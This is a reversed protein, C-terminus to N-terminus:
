YYSGYKKLSALGQSQPGGTPPLASPRRIGAMGGGAFGEPLSFDLKVPGGTAKKIRVEGKKSLVGGKGEVQGAKGYLVLDIINKIEDLEYGSKRLLSTMNKIKNDIIRQKYLNQEAKSLDSLKKAKPNIININGYIFKDDIRSKDIFVDSIKITSGPRINLKPGALTKEQGIITPDNKSYEKIKIKFKDLVSDLNSNIKEAEKITEANWKKGKNKELFNDIDLAINTMAGQGGKLIEQNVVVHQEVIDNLGYLEDKFIKAFKVKSDKSIWDVPILHGLDKTFRKSEAGREGKGYVLSHIEPEELLQANITTDLAKNFTYFDKDIINQLEKRKKTETAYEGEGRIIKDKARSKLNKIIDGLHYIKRDYGELTKTKVDKNTWFGRDTIKKKVRILDRLDRQDASSKGAELFDLIENFTLYQNLNVDKLKADLFNSDKKVNDTIEIISTEAPLDKKINASKIIFGRAKGLNYISGPTLLGDFDKPVSKVYGKKFEKIYKEYAKYININETAGEKVANKKIWSRLQAESLNDIEPPLPANIEEETFQPAKGSKGGGKEAPIGGGKGPGFTKKYLIHDQWGKQESIPFYEQEIEIPEPAKPEEKKIEPRPSGTHIPGTEPIHTVPPKLDKAIRQAEKEIEDADPAIIGRDRLALIASSILGGTEPLYKKILPNILPKAFKYGAGLASVAAGGSFGIRGGEALEMNRPEQSMKRFADFAGKSDVPRTKIYNEWFKDM